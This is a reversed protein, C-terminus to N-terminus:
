YVKLGSGSNPSGLALMSINTSGYTSSGLGRLVGEDDVDDGDDDIDSDGNPLISGYRYTSKGYGKKM